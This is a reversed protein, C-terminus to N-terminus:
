GGALGYWTTGDCRVIAQKAAAITVITASSASDKVTIAHTSSQLNKILIVGGHCMTEKPLNIVRAAGPTMTVVGSCDVDLTTDADSAATVAQLPEWKLRDKHLIASRLRVTVKTISTGAKVAYGIALQNISTSKVKQSLLGDNSGNEHASVMDGIKFTASSCDFEYTGDIQVRVVAATTDSARKQSVCVGAFRMAVYRKNKANSGADTLDVFAVGTGTDSLYVLDGPNFVAASACPLEIVNPM